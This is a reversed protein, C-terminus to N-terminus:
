TGNESVGSSRLSIASFLPINQHVEHLFVKIFFPAVSHGLQPDVLILGLAAYISKLFVANLDATISPEM